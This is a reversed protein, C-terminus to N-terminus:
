SEAIVAAATRVNGFPASVQVGAVTGRIAEIAERAIAIGERKQTEKDAGSAMRRMVEDPVVVGPVENRMFEANRLSALPWIGAIFPIKVKGEREVRAILRLLPEVAFVPQTIVFDAGAEIKEMLRRFEREPDIASPDAGVGAVIKAPAGVSKGGIDLGIALKEAIKVMGISDVDFVGSSFPYDGLKPPDGTIFLINNISKCACGLLESQIGILSRDRGCLHLIPEIHAKEQIEIATILSSIRCSARPGDPLNVACFGAEKCFIAKEVTEKLDFGRPPTIEVSRIWTGNALMKGLNSCEALPIPPFTKEEYVAEAGTNAHRTKALPKVSRAMEAIHEPGIGCCGGVARAGLAVYRLAYTTFYEPSAMYIMRNDVHKPVGANPQVVIPLSTVTRLVELAELTSDPGAGCNIGLAVPKQQFQAIKAIIQSAPEGKGVTSGDRELSLSVMYPLTGTQAAELALGLDEVSPLSEFLLFDAESLAAIQESLMEVRRAHTTETPVEGLPGISGSILIPSDGAAERALRVATRNIAAVQDALGFHALKNYNAGFTNTTLVDCGAQVYSEHVELVSKPATLCLNEFSANVFFNRKYLETGMAGDFILIESTLREGITATHM